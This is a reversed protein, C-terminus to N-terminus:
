KLVLVADYLILFSQHLDIFYISFEPTRGINLQFPAFLLNIFISVEM